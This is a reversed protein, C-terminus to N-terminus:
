YVFRIESYTEKTAPKTNALISFKKFLCSHSPWITASKQPQTFVSAVIAPNSQLLKTLFTRATTKKLFYKIKLGLGRLLLVVPFHRHEPRTQSSFQIRSSEGIQQSLNKIKSIQIARMRCEANVSILLSIRKYAALIPKPPSFLGFNGRYLGFIPRGGLIRPPPPNNDSTPGMYPPVQRWRGLSLAM